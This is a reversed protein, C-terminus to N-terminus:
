LLVIFTSLVPGVRCNPGGGQGTSELTHLRNVYSSHSPLSWLSSFLYPMAAPDSIPIHYTFWMSFVSFFKVTQQKEFLLSQIVLSRFTSKFLSSDKLDLSLSLCLCTCRSSLSFSNCFIIIMLLYTGILRADGAAGQEFRMGM